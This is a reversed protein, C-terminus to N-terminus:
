VEEENVREGGEEEGCDYGELNAFRNPGAWGRVTKPQEVPEEYSLLSPIAPTEDYPSVKVEMVRFQLRVFGASIFISEVCCLAQARIKCSYLLLADQTNDHGDFTKFTTTIVPGRGNEDRETSLKPYFVPGKTPDRLRKKSDQTAPLLPYHMASAITDLYQRSYTKGTENEGQESTLYDKVKEVLGNFMAMFAAEEATPTSNEYMRLSISYGEPINPASGAPQTGKGKFDKAQIGFSQCKDPTAMLVPSLSDPSVEYYLPIKLFTINKATIVKEEAKGFVIRQASFTAPKCLVTQLKTRIQKVIKHQQSM